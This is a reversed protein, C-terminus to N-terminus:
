AFWIAPPDNRSAGEKTVLRRRYAAQRCKGSCYRADWRSASFPQYCYACWLQLPRSRPSTM